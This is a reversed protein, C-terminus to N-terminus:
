GSAVRAKWYGPKRRGHAVAAVQIQEATVRYVIVFPFRKMLYRRTGWRYGAWRAPSRQIAFGAEQLEEQFAKAAQPSRKFYWQYAELADQRADPHFALPLSNM